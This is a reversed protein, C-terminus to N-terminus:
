RVSYLACLVAAAPHEGRVLSRSRGSVISGAAGTAAATV